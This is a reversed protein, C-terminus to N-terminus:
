DLLWRFHLLGFLLLLFEALYLSQSLISQLGTWPAATLVLVILLLGLGAFSAAVGVSFRPEKRRPPERMAAQAVRLAFSDPIAVNPKRALARDLRAEWPSGSDPVPSNPKM